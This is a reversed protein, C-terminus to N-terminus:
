PAIARRAIRRLVLLGLGVLVVAVFVITRLDQPPAPEVPASGGFTPSLPAVSPAAAAASPAASGAAGGNFATKPSGAAAPGATAGESDSVPVPGASAAASAAVAAASPAPVSGGSAAPVAVAGLRDSGTGSAAPGAESTTDRSLGQAGPVNPPAGASAGGSLGFGLPINTLLLGALGITTLGIALPRTFALRPSAFAGVARRWGSPRLRAAQEPTLRFDRPRAAIPPPVSATARAIAILDDHLTACDPCTQILTTAHDRDTGALDGAALAAVLLPDHRDHSTPKVDSADPM